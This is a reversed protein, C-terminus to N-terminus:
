KSIMYDIAIQIERRKKLVEVALPVLQNDIRFQLPVMM